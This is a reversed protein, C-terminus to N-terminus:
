LSLIACPVVEFFVFSADTEKIIIINKGCCNSKIEIRFKAIERFELTADEGLLVTMDRLGPAEKEEM